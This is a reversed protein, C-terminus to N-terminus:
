SLLLYLYLKKFIGVGFQKENQFGKCFKFFYFNFVKLFLMINLKSRTKLILM